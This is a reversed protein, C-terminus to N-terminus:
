RQAGEPPGLRDAPVVEVDVPRAQFGRGGPALVDMDTNQILVRAPSYLGDLLVEPDGLASGTLADPVARGVVEEILHSIRQLSPLRRGQEVRYQLSSAETGKASSANWSDALVATRSRFQLLVPDTGGLAAALRSDLPVRAQVEAKLLGGHLSLGFADPGVVHSMAQTLGAFPSPQSTAPPANTRATSNRNRFKELAVQYGSLLADSRHQSLAVSVDDPSALMPSGDPNRWFRHAEQGFRQDTLVDNSFVDIDQRSFHRRRIRDAMAAGAQADSCVQPRIACEFALTRSAAVSAHRIDQYKAILPVALLFPIIAAAMVLTETMAQGRQASFAPNSRRPVSWGFCARRPIIAAPMM